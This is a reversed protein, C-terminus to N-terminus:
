VNTTETDTDTEKEITITKSTTLLTTATTASTIKYGYSHLYFNHVCQAIYFIGQICTKTCVIACTNIFTYM